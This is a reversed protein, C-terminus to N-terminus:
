RALLTAEDDLRALIANIADRGSEMGIESRVYADSNTLIVLAIGDTEGILIRTSGGNVEGSHGIWRRGHFNSWEWGLARARAVMPFPIARMEANREVSLARTGDLEGGRSVFRTWRAVGVISARVSCSPYFAYGAHELPTFTGRRESYTYPTALRSADVDALLWGAGDLALPGFVRAETRARLDTGAIVEVLHGLMAYCANCYAYATGPEAMWHGADAVYDRSFDGLAVPSDGGISTMAGLLALDDSMGSVHTLLMRATVPATPFAPHRVAYPLYDDVPADLDLLGDDVLQLVVVGTFTKSVSGLIFLTREDVAVGPAAQGRVMTLVTRDPTTIALAVGPLGGRAMQWDVFGELDEPPGADVGGDSPGGDALGFDGGCAALAIALVGAFRRM